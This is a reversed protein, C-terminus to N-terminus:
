TMQSECGARPTTLSNYCGKKLYSFFSDFHNLSNALTGCSISLMVTVEVLEETGLICAIKVLYVREQVRSAYM